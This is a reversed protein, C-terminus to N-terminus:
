ALESQLKSRLDAPQDANCRDGVIHGLQLLAHLRLAVVSFEITITLSLYLKDKDITEVHL